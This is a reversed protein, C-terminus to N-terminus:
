FADDDAPDIGSEYQEVAYVTGGRTDVEAPRWATAVALPSVLAYRPLDEGNWWQLLAQSSALALNEEEEENSRDVVSLRLQGEGVPTYVQAVETGPGSTSTRVLEAVTTTGSRDLHVPDDAWIHFRQLPNAADVDRQPATLHLDLDQAGTWALAALLRGPEQLPAITGVTPDTFPTTLVPFRTGAWGEIPAVYITYLGPTEVTASFSGDAGTTFSAEAPAGVAADWGAQAIGPLGSVPVGDPDVIRGRVALGGAETDLRVSALGRPVSQWDQGPGARLMASGSTLLNVEWRARGTAFDPASVRVSLANGTPETGYLPWSWSGDADTTASGVPEGGDDLLEVAAGGIPLGDGDAVGGDVVVVYGELGQPVCAPLCLLPLAWRTM